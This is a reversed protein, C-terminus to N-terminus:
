GHRLCIRKKPEPLEDKTYLTISGNLKGGPFKFNGYQRISNGEKEYIDLYKPAPQEKRRKDFFFKQSSRIVIEDRVEIFRKYGHCLLPILDLMRLVNVWDNFLIHIHYHDKGPTSNIIDIQDIYVGWMNNSLMREATKKVTDYRVGDMDLPLIKTCYPNVVLGYAMMLSRGVIVHLLESPRIYLNTGNYRAENHPVLFQKRLLIGDYDTHHPSTYIIEQFSDKNKENYIIPVISGISHIRNVCTM